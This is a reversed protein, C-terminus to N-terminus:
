GNGNGMLQQLLSRTPESDMLQRLMEKAESMDGATAKTMASELQPSHSQQLTAFLQKAADTQALAMAKQMDFDRFDDSIKEM